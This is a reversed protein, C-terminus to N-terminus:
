DCLFGGRQDILKAWRQVATPNHLDPDNQREICEALESPDVTLGHCADHAMAFLAARPTNALASTGCGSDNNAESTKSLAVPDPQTASQIDGSTGSNNVEPVEASKVSPLYRNFADRASEITYGRTGPGYGSDSPLKRPSIGFGSLLRAVKTPTIPKGTKGFEPWPREEMDGLKEALDTSSLAKNEILLRRMDALLMTRISEAEAPAGFLALAAARAKEPWDGGAQDAIAILPEWNDGARDNIGAPIMPEAGKLADLHDAAFRAIQQRLEEFPDNRLRTVKEEPLKRRMAVCIARDALTDPLKGIMAVVKAGWTSFRRPEHDDGATRIVFATSRTHGSNLVGRLEDNQGIFTDAEDILLTPTWKDIARFVAAPSINSAPLPKQVLLTLLALLTTKGCRKEPSTIALVPAIRAAGISWTMLVWLAVATPVNDATVAYAEITQEIEDLLAAGNVTEPWPTVDEFDMAGATSIAEAEARAKKVETDLTSARVGLAKAVKDREQDYELADLKALRSVVVKPDAPPVAEQEIADAVAELGKTELYPHDAEAPEAQIWAEACGAAAQNEHFYKCIPTGNSYNSSSM